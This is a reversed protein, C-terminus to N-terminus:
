RHPVAPDREHVREGGPRMGDDAASGSGGKGRRDDDLGALLVNGPESKAAALFGRSEAGQPGGSTRTLPPEPRDAALRGAETGPRAYQVLTRISAHGSKTMPLAIRDETGSAM